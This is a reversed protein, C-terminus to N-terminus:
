LSVTFTVPRSQAIGSTTTTVSTLTFSVRLSSKGISPGLRTVTFDSVTTGTGTLFDSGSSNTLILHGTDVSYTHTDGGIVIVLSSTTAGASSPTTISSARRIDYGMRTILYEAGLNVHSTSTSELEVDITSHFIQTLIGLFSALIGMFILLEVVTFGPFFKSIKRIVM